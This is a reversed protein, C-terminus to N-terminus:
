KIATRVDAWSNPFRGFNRGEPKIGRVVLFNVLERWVSSPIQLKKLEELKHDPLFIERVAGYNRGRAADFGGPFVYGRLSVEEGDDLHGFVVEFATRGLEHLEPSTFVIAM